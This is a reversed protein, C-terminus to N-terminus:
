VTKSQQGERFVLTGSVAKYDQGAVATGNVTRYDVRVEHVASRDLTVVFQLLSVPDPWERASADTVSLGPPSDTDVIDYTATSRRSNVEVGEFLTGFTVVFGESEEIDTDDMGHIVVGGQWQRARLTVNAPVDTIDAETAGGTYTVVLPITVRRGPARDLSVGLYVSGDERLSRSISNDAVFGVELMQQGDDKDSLNGASVREPLTGFGLTVTGGM